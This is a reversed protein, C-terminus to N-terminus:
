ASLSQYRKTKKIGSWHRRAVIFGFCNDSKCLCRYDQWSSRDFGYDYSLEEGAQIDRKAVIWIKEEDSYTYCNPECSHNIYKAVNYDTDGDVDVKDNLSFIYIHQGTEILKELQKESASKTLHKGVYELIETGRPIDRKAVIGYGQIRSNTLEIYKNEINKM